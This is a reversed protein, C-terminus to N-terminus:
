ATRGVDGTGYNFGGSRGSGGFYAYDVIPRAWVANYMEVDRRAQAAQSKVMALMEPDYDKINEDHPHLKAYIRALPAIEVALQKQILRQYGPPVTIPTTLTPFQQLPEWQLLEIQYSSQPGPWFYMLAFSGGHGDPNASKDYYLKLPIATPIQQVRIREWDKDDELIEVPQRVPPSFTNLIVDCYEIKIPRAAQVNIFTQGNIVRPVTENPGICYFQTGGITNFQTLVQWPVYLRNLLWADLMQNAALLIDNGMDASFGMGPRLCGLDRLAMYALGSTGGLQIPM